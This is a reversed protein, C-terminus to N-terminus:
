PKPETYRPLAFSNVDRLMTSQGNFPVALPLRVSLYAYCLPPISSGDSVLEGEITRQGQDVKTFHAVVSPPSTDSAIGATCGLDAHDFVGDDTIQTWALERAQSKGIKLTFPWTLQAGDASRKPSKAYAILEPDDILSLAPLPFSVRLPPVQSKADSPMMERFTLGAFGADRSLAFISGNTGLDRTITVECSTDQVATMSFQVSDSSSWRDASCLFGPIERVQYTVKTKQPFGVYVTEAKSSLLAPRVEEWARVIEGPSPLREVQYPLKNQLSLASDTLNSGETSEGPTLSPYLFTEFSEVNAAAENTLEGSFDADVGGIPFASGGKAKLTGELRAGSQRLNYLAFGNFGALYYFSQDSTLNSRSAYWLWVGILARMRSYRPSSSSLLISLPSFFRGQVLALQTHSEFNNKVAAQVSVQPVSLRADLAAQVVSSCSQKYYVSSSGPDPQPLVFQPITAQNLYDSFSSSGTLVINQSPSVFRFLNWSSQGNITVVRRSLDRDLAQQLVAPIASREKEDIKAVRCSKLMVGFRHEIAKGLTSDGTFPPGWGVSLPNDGGIGLFGGCGLLAGM